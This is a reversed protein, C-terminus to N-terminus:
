LDVARVGDSVVRGALEAWGADDAPRVRLQSGRGQRITLPRGLAGVLRVAASGTAEDEVVNSVPATVRAYIEGAAEDTWAWLVHEDRGSQPFTQARVEAEDALRVLTWDTMDDILARIWTLGDERWTAVEGALRPRLVDPRRGTVEALTWSTGVIPHGALRMEDVPDFIRIRATERDDVFVTESFGLRATLEIGVASDLGATDFVVGLPNGHTGDDAVFVRVVHVDM